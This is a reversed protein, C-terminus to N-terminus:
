SSKLSGHVRRSLFSKGLGTFAGATLVTVQLQFGGPLVSVPRRSAQAGLTRLCQGQTLTTSAKPTHSGALQDSPARSTPAVTALGPQTRGVLPSAFHRKWILPGAQVTSVTMLKLSFNQTNTHSVCGGHACIGRAPTRPAPRGPPRQQWLGPM